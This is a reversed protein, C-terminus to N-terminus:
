KPITNLARGLAELDYVECFNKSARAVAVYYINKEEGWYPIPKWDYLIVNDFELGKSCHCTMIRLTESGCVEEKEEGELANGRHITYGIGKRSLEARVEELAKNTRTLIATLGTTKVGESVLGRPYISNLRDVIKSSSRYNSLLPFLKHQQLRKFVKIGLAGNWGYISQFPDGVAFLKEGVLSLVIDLEEETLDQVEDVLVWEFKTRYGKGLYSFLLKEYNGKWGVESYCFSHITQSRVEAIRVRIEEAAARTFTLCIVDKGSKALYEAKSTLVRTKGSGPGAVVVCSDPYKVIESQYPNLEIPSTGEM